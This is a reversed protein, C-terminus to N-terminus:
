NFNTQATKILLVNQDAQLLSSLMYQFNLLHGALIECEGLRRSRKRKIRKALLYHPNTEYSQQGKASTCQVCDFSVATLDMPSPYM